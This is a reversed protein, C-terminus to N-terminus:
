GFGKPHSRPKQSNKIRDKLSPSRSGMQKRIQQQMLKFDEVPPPLDDLVTLRIRSGPMVEGVLVRASEDVTKGLSQGELVEVATIPRVYYDCEPHQLFFDRDRQMVQELQESWEPPLSARHADQTSGADPDLLLNHTM